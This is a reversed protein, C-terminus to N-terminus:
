DLNFLPLLEKLGTVVVRNNAILITEDYDTDKLILQQVVDDGTRGQFYHSSRSRDVLVGNWGAKVAGVFDEKYNDGIHWVNELYEPSAEESAEQEYNAEIVKRYFARDPKSSGLDYSLYVDSFYKSIGLSQMIPFARDDSNTSAVVKIDHKHLTELVPIVDDYLRYAESSSFFSLLRQSLKVLIPDNRPIDYLRAILELWWDDCSDLGKNYKGYNPYESLMQRYVLPFEETLSSVLKKIGFEHYSIQYYQEPIPAKPTYLTGWLDFSIFNPKPFNSRTSAKSILAFPDSLLSNGSMRRTFLGINRM